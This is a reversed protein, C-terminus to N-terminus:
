SSSITCIFVSITQTVDISLLMVTNSTDKLLQHTIHLVRLMNIIGQTNPNRLPLVM